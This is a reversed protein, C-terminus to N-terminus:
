SAIAWNEYVLDPVRQYERSNNTVLTMKRSIAQAAIQLDYPGIGQGKRELKARIEGYAIADADTFSIFEFPALFQILADENTHQQESKAVRNDTFWGNAPFPICKRLLYSM